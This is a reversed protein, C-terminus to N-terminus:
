EFNKVLVTKRKGYGDYRETNSNIDLCEKMFNEGNDYIDDATFPIEFGNNECIETIEEIM